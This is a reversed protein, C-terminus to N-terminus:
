TMYSKSRINKYMLESLVESSLEQLFEWLILGSHNGVLRIAM